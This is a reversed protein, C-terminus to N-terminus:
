ENYKDKNKNRYLEISETLDKKKKLIKRYFEDEEYMKPKDAYHKFSIVEYYNEFWPEFEEIESKYMKFTITVIEEEEM